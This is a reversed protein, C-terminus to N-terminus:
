KLGQAASGFAQWPAVKPAARRQQESRRDGHSRVADSLESPRGSERHRQEPQERFIATTPVIARLDGTAARL